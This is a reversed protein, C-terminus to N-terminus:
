AYCAFYSATHLLTIFIDLAPTTAGYREASVIHMPPSLMLATDLAAAAGAAYLQQIACQCASRARRLCPM